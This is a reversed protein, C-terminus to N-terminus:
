KKLRQQVICLAKLAREGAADSIERDIILDRIAREGDQGAAAANLIRQVKEEPTEGFKQRASRVLEPIKGYRASYRQDQEAGTCELVGRIINTIAGDNETLMVLRAALDRTSV